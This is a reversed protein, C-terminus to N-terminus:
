TEPTTYTLYAAIAGACVGILMLLLHLGKSVTSLSDNFIVVYFLPPLIYALLSSGLSGVLGIVEGFHPVLAAITATMCVLAARLINRKLEVGSAYASWSLESPATRSESVPFLARELIDIVVFLQIPYTFFLAVCLTLKVSSSVISEPPLNETVMSHIDDGFGMYSILGSVLFFFTVCVFAINLVKPYDNPTAMSQQIPIVLAIGEFTASAIGICLAFTSPRFHAVPPRESDFLLLTAYYNVICLGLVTCLEALLSFPALWKLSRLWSLMTLAITALVIFQVESGHNLVEVLNESIFIMYVTCFGIQTFVLSANVVLAGMPGLAHRGVDGYSAPSEPHEGVLVNRCMLLLTMCYRAAIAISLLVVAGGVTGSMKFAYPLGLVGSGFFSNVVNFFSAVNSAKASGDETKDKADSHM